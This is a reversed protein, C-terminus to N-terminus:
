HTQSLNSFIPMDKLFDWFVLTLLSHPGIRLYCPGWGKFFGLAGETKAMKIFCDIIGNYLLGKGHKDVGSIPNFLHIKM